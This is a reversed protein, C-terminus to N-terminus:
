AESGRGRHREAPGERQSQDLPKATARPPTLLGPRRMAELWVARAEERGGPTPMREAVWAPAAAPIHGLIPAIGQYREEGLEEGPATLLETLTEGRRIGVLDIEPETGPGAGLWIRDALEGVTLKAPASPAALMVGQRALLAAQAALTVAHAITIWYRVMGTDTVTLPVGARAQSLFLESASGRSGLANVFRVAIHHGSPHQGTYATLQEMFRKTRGYFSAATAAKDTSTVVVTEVGVNEAARLVNWSGHLNTDVFEEPYTEAWDVHKFAALHFVVDPRARGFETELRGGDRIDCLVHDMCRIAAQERRRRDAVLGAEYSDLLAIHKHLKCSKAYQETAKKGLKLQAIDYDDIVNV